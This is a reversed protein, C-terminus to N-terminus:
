GPSTEIRLWFQPSHPDPRSHSAAATSLFVDSM